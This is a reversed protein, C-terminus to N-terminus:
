RIYIRNTKSENSKDEVQSQQQNQKDVFTVAEKLTEASSLLHLRMEYANMLLSMGVNTDRLNDSNDIQEWAIKM